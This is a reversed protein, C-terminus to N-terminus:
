EREGRSRLLLGHDRMLARIDHLVAESCAGREACAILRGLAQALALGRAQFVPPLTVLTADSM